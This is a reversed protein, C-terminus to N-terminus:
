PRPTEQVARAKGSACTDGAMLRRLALSALATAGLLLCGAAFLSNYAGGGVENATAMAMHASLTRLSAFFGEPAQPANGALMLPLLTDGAARGFGLVAAAVLTRGAEPLVFRRLLQLRSFGLAQGWPCLAELRPKLGAELTLLMSPLILLTLVLGATALGLGTGGFCGRMLPTLLFVAAFGYVVTPITTMFRVLGATFRVLPALFKAEECLLWCALGLALPWGLALAFATLALTGACMPLIGFQGEYPHWNWHFPSEGGSGFLAPLAALAVMLCLLVAGGAALAAALRAGWGAGDGPDAPAELVPLDQAVGQASEQVAEPVPAQADQLPSPAVFADPIDPSGSSPM